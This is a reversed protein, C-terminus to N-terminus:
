CNIDQLNWESLDLVEDYGEYYRWIQEVLLRSLDEEVTEWDRERVDQFLRPATDGQLGIDSLYADFIEHLHTWHTGGVLFQSLQLQSADLLALDNEVLVRTLEHWAAFSLGDLWTPTAGSIGDHCYQPIGRTDVREVGIQALYLRYLGLLDVQLNEDREWFETTRHWEVFSEIEPHLGNNYLRPSGDPEFEESFYDIIAEHTLLNGTDIWYLMLNTNLMPYEGHQNIFRPSRHFEAHESRQRTIQFAANVRLYAQQCEETRCSRSAEGGSGPWLFAGVVGLVIVVVAAIAAILWKRKPTRTKASEM